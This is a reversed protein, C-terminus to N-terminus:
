LKVMINLYTTPPLINMAVNGGRSVIGAQIANAGAGVGLGSGTDTILNGGSSTTHTHALLESISMAHAEEGAQEGLARSTFLYTLTATGAGSITIDPTGAQALALTTALRVNVSSVRVLYYTPGATATTTFGTLNSLIVPQGTIWKTNNTLVGFGDAGSTTVAETSQGIGYGALARGVSRPLTMPKHANFDASASAGRGGTVPAWQDILNTWFLTYLTVTDANARTTAASTADGITGDDMLTWGTDATTKWSMKVDGTSFGSTAFVSSRSVERWVYNGGSVGENAFVMVDNASTTYDVGGALILNGSHTLTLAGAFVLTVTSQDGSILNIGVTGTVLFENGDTGLVLTSASAINAGKGTFSQSNDTLNVNDFTYLTVSNDDQIIFKYLGDGYFSAIGQSDAVVPQAATTTKLRDTYVNLLTTTGANYHWVQHGSILAGGEFYPGFEIFQAFTAM